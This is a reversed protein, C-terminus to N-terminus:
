QKKSNRVVRKDRGSRWNRILRGLIAAILILGISLLALVLLYHGLTDWSLGWGYVALMLFSLSALLNVGLGRHRFLRRLM